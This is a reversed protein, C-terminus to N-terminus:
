LGLDFLKDLCQDCAYNPHRVLQAGGHVLSVNHQASFASLVCIEGCSIHSHDGSRLADFNVYMEGQYLVAEAEHEGGIHLGDTSRLRRTSATRMGASSAVVTHVVACCIM